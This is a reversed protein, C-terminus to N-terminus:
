RPDSGVRLCAHKKAHGPHLGRKWPYRPFQDEDQEM